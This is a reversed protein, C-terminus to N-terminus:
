EMEIKKIRREHRGGEFRTAMWTDVVALAAERSITREGIAIMNANNHSKAWTATETSWCVACRIGKVKNAVIAEGNGSGGLVIGADAEHAAVAEAVPRVFDPYDCRKESFTGFDIVEISQKQLHTKIMEKYGFGAHDSGIALKM